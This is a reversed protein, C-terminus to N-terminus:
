NNGAPIIIFFYSCTVVAVACGVSFISRVCSCCTKRESGGGGGGKEEENFDDYRDVIDLHKTDPTDVPSSSVVFVHNANIFLHKIKLMNM